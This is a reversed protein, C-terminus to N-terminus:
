GCPSNWNPKRVQGFIRVKDKKTISVNALREKKRVMEGKENKSNSNKFVM